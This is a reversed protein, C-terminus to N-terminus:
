SINLTKKLTEILGQRTFPRILINTIGLEKTQLLTEKDLESTVLLFTIDRIASDVQIKKYLALGDTDKLKINCIVVEVPIGSKAYMMMQDITEKGNTSYHINKLGLSSLGDKLPSYNKKNDDVILINCNKKAGM